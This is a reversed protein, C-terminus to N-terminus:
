YACLYLFLYIGNSVSTKFSKRGYLTCIRFLISRDYLAINNCLTFYIGLLTLLTKHDINPFNSEIDAEICWKVGQFKFKVDKLATHTGKGPRSCHSSDLFSPEYIANLVLYIAQQVVKDRPSSYIFQRFM